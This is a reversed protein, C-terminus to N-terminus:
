GPSLIVSELDIRFVHLGRVLSVKPPPFLAGELLSGTETCKKWMENERGKSGVTYTM